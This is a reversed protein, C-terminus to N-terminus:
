PYVMSWQLSLEDYRLHDRRANRSLELKLAQNGGLSLRAGLMVRRTQFHPFLALYGDDRTDRTAEIRGFLRWDHHIQYEPQLYAALFSGRTTPGSGEDRHSVHFLEGLLRHRETERLFYLGTTTQDIHELPALGRVPIRAHTAFGGWEMDGGTDSSMTHYGLRGSLALKGGSGPDGILLPELEQDQYRPGRGVGLAYNLSAEGRALSGEALLGTIHAPLVGGEDEFALIGPRSLTTQLYAGHHHDTNWLGLPTHFRGFWIISESSALWGAQLREIEQEDDRVLLEALLHLREWATSYFINVEPRLRNSELDPGHDSRTFATLAPFLVLDTDMPSTAGHHDHEAHVACAALLAAGAVLAKLPHSPRPPM